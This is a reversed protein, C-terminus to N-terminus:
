KKRKVVNIGVSINHNLNKINKYQTHERVSIWARKFATGVNGGYTSVNINQLEPPLDPFFFSIRFDPM